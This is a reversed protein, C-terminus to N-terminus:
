KYSRLNMVRPGTERRIPENRRQAVQALTINERKCVACVDARRSVPGGSILFNSEM